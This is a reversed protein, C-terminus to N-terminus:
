NNKFISELERMQTDTFYYAGNAKLIDPYRKNMNLSVKEMYYIQGFYAEGLKKDRNTLLSILQKTVQFRIPLFIDNCGHPQLDRALNYAMKLLQNTNQIKELYAVFKLLDDASTFSGKLGELEIFIRDRVFANKSTDICQFTKAINNYRVQYDDGFMEKGYLDKDYATIQFPHPYELTTKTGDDWFLISKFYYTGPVIRHDYLGNMKPGSFGNVVIILDTFSGNARVMKIPELYGCDFGHTQITDAKWIFNDPTLPKEHSFMSEFNAYTVDATRGADTLLASQM